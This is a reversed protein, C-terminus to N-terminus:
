CRNMSRARAKRSSATVPVKEGPRVRLMDGVQVQTLPVDEEAGDDRIRRATKPSLGLLSKIAASTHSRARLELLQGLLTLSVIVAAAEYYVGVRAGHAAFSRPFLEPAFTAVLSYGFAAAVGTGILTWMNLSRNRLSQWWRVFFPWGAWLVVPASLVLEILNQNPLGAPFLFHGSMALAFVTVSLPLTWWFRRRFDVLEPSEQEDLSPMMPELAMGCLPCSGPGAQQIEPHMPCTYVTGAPATVPARASGADLYQAPDARFKEVCRTSCFYYANGDHLVQKEANEAVRMGCVPDLFPKDAGQKTDM